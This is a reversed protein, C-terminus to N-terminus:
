YQKLFGSNVSDVGASSSVKLTEIIREIFVYDSLIPVMIILTRVVLVPFSNVTNKFSAEVFTNNLLTICESAM